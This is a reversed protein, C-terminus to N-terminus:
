KTSSKQVIISLGKPRWLSKLDFLLNKLTYINLYLQRMRWRILLIEIAHFCQRIFRWHFPILNPWRKLMKIIVKIILPPLLPLVMCILWFNYFEDRLDPKLLPSNIFGGRELKSMHQENLIGAHFAIKAIPQLSYYVLPLPLILTPRIKNYFMLADIRDRRDEFPINFIHNVSFSLNERHCSEAANIIEENRGFRNLIEKRTKENVSEVGMELFYCGAQKLLQVMEDTVYHPHSECTFPLSIEEKYRPAFERLWKLNYPFNADVFAIHNPKLDEKAWRLEQLVHNVSRSRIYKGKEKYKQKLVSNLCYNCNYPCGRSTLILYEKQMQPYRDFFLMKDPIPIRDLNDILPRIENKILNGNQKFWINRIKFNKTEKGSFSNALEVIAEEGEGVCVMDVSPNRIVAEPTLIAQPGGFIIPIVKCSEKIEKSIEVAWSYNYADISFGVLDPELEIAEQAARAFNREVAELFSHKLFVLYVDHGKRKLMASLYELSLSEYKFHIFVIRM